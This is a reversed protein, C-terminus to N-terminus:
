PLLEALDRVVVNAGAAALEAANGHRAKGDVHRRYDTELEFPRFPEGRAKARRELFGDFVRKWCLAHVWATDTVVGDLDFLTADFRGSIALTGSLSRGGV